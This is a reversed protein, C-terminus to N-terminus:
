QNVRRTCADENISLYEDIFKDTHESVFSLIYGSDRGHTGTRSTSWTTAANTQRSAIDSVLKKYELSINFASSVVNVNVYLYPLASASYLRAARLRSRVATSIRERTLGIESADDPLFEVTLKMPLCENWLEFRDVKTTVDESRAPGSLSLSAAAILTVTLRKM